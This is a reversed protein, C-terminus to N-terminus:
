FSSNPQELFALEDPTSARGLIANRHPFRGFRDVIVRHQDAYDLLDADGALAEAAALVAEAQVGTDNAVASVGEITRSVDNTGAAADQSSRAIEQTSADQEEVASAIATVYGDIERIAGAVERIAVVAAAVGDQVEKIQQTIEDTARATQGALSKVEGAVVAFGKGAEGARAAEITANLALLNTQEAIDQILTVVTDIRGAAQELSEVLRNTTEAQDAAERARTSSQAIKSSIDRISASLEEAASAM